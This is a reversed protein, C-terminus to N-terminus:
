GGSGLKAMPQYFTAPDEARFKATAEVMDFYETDSPMKKLKIPTDDNRFDTSLNQM